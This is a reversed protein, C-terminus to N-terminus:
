KKEYFLRSLTTDYKDKEEKYSTKNTSSLDTMYKKFEKSDQQGSFSLVTIDNTSLKLNNDNSYETLISVLTRRESNYANHSDDENKSTIALKQHIAEHAVVVMVGLDSIKYSSNSPIDTNTKYFAKTDFSTPASTKESLINTLAYAGGAKVKADNAYLMLNFKKNNEYRSIAGQFSSNNKRLDQFAKGYPTNLFAKSPLVDNGDPDIFKIPNNLAYNYPSVPSYKEAKNDIVNWRAIVPDYFRAGYDYQGLEEQLEKGNYLYKNNGAVAGTKVKGFPYYDDRQLDRVVGAQIDFS